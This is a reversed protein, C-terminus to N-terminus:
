GPDFPSGLVYQSTLTSINNWTLFLTLIEHIYCYQKCILNIFIPMFFGIEVTVIVVWCGLLISDSKFFNKVHHSLITISQLPWGLKWKIPWGIWSQQFFALFYSAIPPLVWFVVTRILSGRRTGCLSAGNNLFTIAGTFFGTAITNFPEMLYTIEICSWLKKLARLM